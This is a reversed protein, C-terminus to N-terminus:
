FKYNFKNLNLLIRLIIKSIQRKSDNPEFEDVELEMDMHKNVKDVYAQKKALTDCEKPFKSSKLKLALFLLLRCRRVDDTSVVIASATSIRSSNKSCRRRSTNM